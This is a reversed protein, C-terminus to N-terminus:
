ATITAAVEIANEKPTVVFTFVPCLLLNQWFTHDTTAEFVIYAPQFDDLPVFGMSKLKLHAGQDHSM